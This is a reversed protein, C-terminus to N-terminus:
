NSFYANITWIKLQVFNSDVLKNVVSTSVFTYPNPVFGLAREGVGIKRVWERNM